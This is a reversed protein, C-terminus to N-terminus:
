GKRVQAHPPRLWLVLGGQVDSGELVVLLAATTLHLGVVAGAHWTSLVAEAYRAAAIPPEFGWSTPTPGGPPAASRAVFLRGGSTGLLLSGSPTWARCTIREGDPIASVDVEARKVFVRGLVAELKLLLM